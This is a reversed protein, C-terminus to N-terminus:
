SDFGILEFENHQFRFTYIKNSTYWTGCSYWYNLSLKIVGSQIEIGGDMLPDALCPSEADNEKPIFTKNLEKLDYGNETKFIVLLYRPNLNIEPSGLSENQFINSSDTNEIILVVDKKNDKNLDGESQETIKWNEPVFDNLNKGTHPIEQSFVLSHIGLFLISYFKKMLIIR